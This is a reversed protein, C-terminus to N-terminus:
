RNRLLRRLERAALFAGFGGAVLVAGLTMPNLELVGLLGLVGMAVLAGELALLLATAIAIRLTM